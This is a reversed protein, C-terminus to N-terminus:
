FPRLRKWHNKGADTVKKIEADVEKILAELKPFKGPQLFPGVEPTFAFLTVKSEAKGRAVDEPTRARYVRLAPARDVQDESSHLATPPPLLLVPDFGHLYPGAARLPAALALLLWLPSPLRLNM